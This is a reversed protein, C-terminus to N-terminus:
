EVERCTLEIVYDANSKMYRRVIKYETGEHEIIEPKVKRGESNTMIALEYDVESVVFIDTVQENAQMAEYYERYTASKRLAFCPTKIPESPIEFGDADKLKEDVYTILNIRENFM